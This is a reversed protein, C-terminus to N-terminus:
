YRKFKLIKNKEILLFKIKYGKEKLKEIAKIIFETGKFGRHNPVHAIVIESNKGNSVQKKNSKKWHKLDLSLPSPILTDWRGIGDAFLFGAIIADAYKTWYNVKRLISTQYRSTLPYSYILAHATSSSNINRTVYADGGYPLVIIKRALKLYFVQLFDIPTEQLFFGDFSTFFIM